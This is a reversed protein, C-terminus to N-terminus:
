RLGAGTEAANLAELQELVEGIPEALLSEGTPRDRMGLAVSLAFLAAAALATVALVFDRLSGAPASGEVSPGPTIAGGPIPVETREVARGESDRLASMVRSSFGAPVEPAAAPVFWRELARGESAVGRCEPCAMLHQRLMAAQGEVLEGDLYRPMLELARECRMGAASGHNSRDDTM